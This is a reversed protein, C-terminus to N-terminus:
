GPCAAQSLVVAAYLLVVAYILVTEHVRGEIETPLQQAVAIDVCSTTNLSKNYLRVGLDSNVLRSSIMSSTM